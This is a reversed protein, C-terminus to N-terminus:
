HLLGRVLISLPAHLEHQPTVGLGGVIVEEKLLLLHHVVFLVVSLLTPPPFSPFADLLGTLAAGRAGM